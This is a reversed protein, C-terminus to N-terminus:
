HCAWGGRANWLSLSLAARHGRELLGQVQGWREATTRAQKGEKLPPGAAAWCSSHAAVEKLVAGALGHWLHWRDGVQVAGPLAQRVAELPV